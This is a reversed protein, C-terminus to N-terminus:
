RMTKKAKNSAIPEPLTLTQLRNAIEFKSSSELKAIAQAALANTRALYHQLIVNVTQLSHGTITAIQQPSCNAESLWTVATGRLDHFHLRVPHDINPLRVTRMGADTMTQDILRLFYRKKFPMGTKTTLIYSSVRPMADLTRRLPDICPIEVVPGAVGNRKSKSQRLKIHSGDYASWRLALLDGERQGTFLALMVAPRIEAPAHKMFLSLHEEAWIIESRDAHYLRKVGRVHNTSVIGRDRAWTIMASTVSLQNDAERKGSARAVKDRYALLVSRVGPKDLMVIPLDGFKTEAITLM